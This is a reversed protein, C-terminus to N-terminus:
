DLMPFVQAYKGYDTVVGCSLIPKRRFDKGYAMAYSHRDIGSGVSMGFMATHDKDNAAWEIGSVSHCHGVVTSMRSDYAANVHPMKSSYGTGHIYRVGHIHFEFADEWKTPLEWIDRFPRFVREPLGNTRGKRDVLVDHNGRCLKLEPFAKYWGTKLRKITERIEDEPSLGNPNIEHYSIAHNDVLDGIHVVHKCKCRNKIEVCFDLYNPKEFPIHTDGIVLINGDRLKSTLM